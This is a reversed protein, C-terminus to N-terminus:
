SKFAAILHSPDGVVLRCIIIPVLGSVLVVVTVFIFVVVIILVLAFVHHFLVIIVYITAVRTPIMTTPRMITPRVAIATILWMVIVTIPGMVITSMPIVRLPRADVQRGEDFRGGVRAAEKKVASFVPDFASRISRYMLKIKEVLIPPIFHRLKLV